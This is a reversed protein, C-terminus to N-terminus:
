AAQAKNTSCLTTEVHWIAPIVGGEQKKELNLYDNQDPNRAVYVRVMKGLWVIECKRLSLGKSYSLGHRFCVSTWPVM